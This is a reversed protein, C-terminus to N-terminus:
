NGWEKKQFYLINYYANNPMEKVAKLEWGKMTIQNILQQETYKPVYHITNIILTNGERKENIIIDTTLQNIRKKEKNDDNNVMLLFGIVATIIIMIIGLLFITDNEIM